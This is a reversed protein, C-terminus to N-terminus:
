RRKEGSEDIALMLYLVNSVQDRLWNRWVAEHRTTTWVEDYYRFYITLVSADNDQDVLLATVKAESDSIQRAVRMQVVVKRQAYKKVWADITGPLRKKLGEFETEPTPQPPTPFADLSYPEIKPLFPVDSSRPPVPPQSHAPAFVCAVTLTTVVLLLAYKHM